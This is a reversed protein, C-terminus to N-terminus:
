NIKRIKSLYEDGSDFGYVELCAMDLEEILRDFILEIYITNM